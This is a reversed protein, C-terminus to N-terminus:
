ITPRDLHNFNLYDLLVNWLIANKIENIDLFPKTMVVVGPNTFTPWCFVGIRKAGGCLKGM